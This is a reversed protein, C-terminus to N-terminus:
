ATTSKIATAVQKKVNRADCRPGWGVSVPLVDRGVEGVLREQSREKRSNWQIGTGASQEGQRDPSLHLSERAEGGQPADAKRREYADAIDGQSQISYATGYAKHAWATTLISPM